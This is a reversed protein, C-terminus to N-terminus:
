EIKELYFMLWHSFSPFALNEPSADNSSCDSITNTLASYYINGMEQGPYWEAWFCHYCPLTFSEYYPILTRPDVAKGNPTILPEKPEDLLDQLKWYVEPVKSTPIIGSDTSKSFGNHIELFALYDEPLIFDPFSLKLKRIEEDTAGLEGRFFGSNDKLSYVLYAKFPSDFMQQTVFIGIDDLSNFFDLIFETLKPCFPMKNIWFDCVLEIRDKSKLQSLEYWGKNLNPMLQTIQDWHIDPTEHLPIVRHFHGNPTKSTFQCFYEKVHLDMFLGDSQYVDEDKNYCLITKKM